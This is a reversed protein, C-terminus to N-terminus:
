VAPATLLASSRALAQPGTVSGALAGARDRGRALRAGDDRTRAPPAGPRRAPPARKARATFAHCQTRSLPRSCRRAAAKPATSPGRAWAEERWASAVSAGPSRRPAVAGGISAALFLPFRIRGSGQDSFKGEKAAARPRPAPGRHPGREARDRDRHETHEPAHRSGHERASPISSVCRWRRSARLHGLVPSTVPRAVGYSGSRLSRPLGQATDAPVSNLPLARGAPRAGSCFPRGGRFPTSRSM